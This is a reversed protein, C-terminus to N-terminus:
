RVGSVIVLCEPLHLLRAPPRVGNMEICFVAFCIAGVARARQPIWMAAFSM